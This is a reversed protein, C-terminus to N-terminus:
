IAVLDRNLGTHFVDHLEDFEVLNHFSCWGTLGHRGEGSLDEFFHGILNHLM